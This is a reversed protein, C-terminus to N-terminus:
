KELRVSVVKESVPLQGIVQKNQTILRSTASLTSRTYGSEIKKSDQQAFSFTIIVIIFLAVAISKETYISKM